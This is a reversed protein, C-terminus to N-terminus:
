WLVISSGHLDIGGFYFVGLVRMVLLLISLPVFGWFFYGTWFRSFGPTRLPLGYEGVPRREIKSMIWCIFLLILLPVFEGLGLFIPFVYGSPPKNGPSPALGLRKVLLQAGGAIVAIICIFILLRWGARLGRENHFIAEIRSM